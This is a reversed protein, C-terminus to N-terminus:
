SRAEEIYKRVLAPCSKAVLVPQKVRCIFSDVLSNFLIRESLSLPEAAIIILDQDASNAEQRIQWDPSGQRLSINTQIDLNVFDKCLKQIQIGAASKTNILDDIGFRYMAPILPMTPLITVSSGSPKALHVVWDIANDDITKNCHLILLINNLVGSPKNVFLISTPVKELMKHMIPGFILHHFLSQKIEGVIVLDYRGRTVEDTLANLSYDGETPPQFCDIQANLMECISKAYNWVKNTKRAVEDDHPHSSDFVLVRLPYDQQDLWISNLKSDITKREGSVVYVSYGLAKSIIERAQEDEPNAMAVTIVGNEEVLPLAHYRFALEYPLCKALKPDSVIDILELSKM